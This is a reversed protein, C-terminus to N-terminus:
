FSLLYFIWPCISILLQLIFLPLLYCSLLVIEFLIKLRVFFLRQFFDSYSSKQKHNTWLLMDSGLCRTRRFWPEWGWCQQCKSSFLEKKKRPTILHMKPHKVADKDIDVLHQYCGYGLWPFWFHRWVNGFSDGTSFWQKLNILLKQSVM